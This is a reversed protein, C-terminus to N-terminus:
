RTPPRSFVDRLAEYCAYRESASTLVTCKEFSPTSLVWLTAICAYGTSYRGPRHRTPGSCNYSRFEGGKLQPSQRESRLQRVEGHAAGLISPNTQFVRSRPTIPKKMRRPPRRPQSTQRRNITSGGEVLGVEVRKPM